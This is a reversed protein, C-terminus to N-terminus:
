SAELWTVSSHCCRSTSLGNSMRTACGGGPGSVTMVQVVSREIFDGNPKNIRWNIKAAMKGPEPVAFYHEQLCSFLTVNFCVHATLKPKDCCLARGRGRGRAGFFVYPSDESAQWLLCNLASREEGSGLHSVDVGGVQCDFTDFLPNYGATIYWRGTFGQLDFSKDLACDPPVPFLGQDSRQPVCKQDSVACANFTDVAKDGYLDGCRPLLLLVGVHLSPSLLLLLLLLPNLQGAGSLSSSPVRVCTM